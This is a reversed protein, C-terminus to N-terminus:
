RKVPAVPRVNGDLGGKTNRKPAVAKRKATEKRKAPVGTSPVGSVSVGKTKVGKASVGASRLISPGQKSRPDTEDIYDVPCNMLVSRMVKFITGQKPKTQIDAWMVETPCDRIVVNGDGVKDKVYFIHAKIHKTKSSSSFKGNIELLQASVNDQHLEIHEVDWGQARIFYLSWLM